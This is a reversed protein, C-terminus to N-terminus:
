VHLHLGGDYHACVGALSPVREALAFEVVVGQDSQEGAGGTFDETAGDYENQAAMKDVPFDNHDTHDM